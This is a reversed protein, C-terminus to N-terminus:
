KVQNKLEIAAKYYVTDPCNYLTCNNIITNFDAEVDSVEIYEKRSVKANMLSFDMPHKIIDLYDPVQTHHYISHLNFKELAM